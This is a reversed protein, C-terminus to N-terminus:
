CVLSILTLCRYVQAWGPRTRYPYTAQLLHEPTHLSCYLTVGPAAYVGPGSCVTEGVRLYGIPKGENLIDITYMDTIRQYYAM